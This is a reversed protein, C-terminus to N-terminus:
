PTATLIEQLRGLSAEMGKRNREPFGLRELLWGAKSTTPDWEETVKTRAGGDLPELSWRWTHGAFHHWAIRRSEEFEIVTNTVRYPVGAKMGMAFKAGLSLRAPGSSPSQKVTGSGDLLPHKSPDALLEFIAEPPADVVREVIVPTSM